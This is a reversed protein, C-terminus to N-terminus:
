GAGSSPSQTPQEPRLGRLQNSIVALDAKIQRLTARRSALILLVTSIAALLLAAICALLIEACSNFARIWESWDNQLDVRHAAYANLRPVVIVFYLFILWAVGAAALVWLLTAAGVLLRIRGRDREIVQDSMRKPDSTATPPQTGLNLLAKGLENDPM